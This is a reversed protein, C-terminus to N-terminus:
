EIAHCIFVSGRPVTKSQQLTDSKTRDALAVGFLTRIIFVALM